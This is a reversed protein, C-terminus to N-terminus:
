STLKIYAVDFKAFSRQLAAFWDPLTVDDSETPWHTGLFFNAVIHLVAERLQTDYTEIGASEAVKFVAGQMPYAALLKPIFTIRIDLHTEMRIRRQAEKLLSEELGVDLLPRPNLLHSVYYMGDGMRQMHQKLYNEGLPTKLLALVESPKLYM